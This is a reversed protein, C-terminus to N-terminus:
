GALTTAEYRRERVLEYAFLLRDRMRAEAPLLPAVGPDALYGGLFAGRNRRTWAAALAAALPAEQDPRQALAEASARGLAFTMDAVDELCSGRRLALSPAGGFDSYLPDDGFGTVLWGTEARMVRRLHYDGHLQVEAGLPGGHPEELTPPLAATSLERQGFAEAMAVHLRATTEGLRRMESALDGGAAAAARDADDLDIPGSFTGERENGPAAHALLDRLSTLALLRGELASPLFERVLALDVDGDRWRGLPALLANFGVQDLRFLVEVEPRPGQELVRYCKMFIREDFVLSAHSVLTALPRVLDGQARGETALELVSRMLEDDALADYCIVTVGDDEASGLLARDENRLVGALANAPRWGVLQLLLRDGRRLTLRALGPTGERLVEASVLELPTLPDNSVLLAYWSQRELYGPLLGFLTTADLSM